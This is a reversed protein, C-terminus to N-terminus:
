NNNYLAKKIKKSIEESEYYIMFHGGNEIIFKPKGKMPLTRDKTGHIQIIENNNVRFNWNVISTMAWKAFNTDTSNIIDKLLTHGEKDKIGFAFDLMFFYKNLFSKPVLYILKGFIRIWFPLQNINKASSILITKKNKLTDSIESAVMGGFSLGIIVSDKDLNYKEIIKLGYSKITDKKEPTFWNIYVIDLDKDFKIKTFAKEDVGLGSIVYIKQNM